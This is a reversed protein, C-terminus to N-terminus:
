HAPAAATAGEAASVADAPAATTPTNGTTAGGDANGANQEVRDATANLASEQAENPTAAAQQELQDATAEAKKDAPSDCAAVGMLSLAAAAIFFKRM